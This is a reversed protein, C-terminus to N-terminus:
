KPNGNEDLETESVVKLRISDVNALDIRFQDYIFKFKKGFFDSRGAHVRGNFEFDRNKLLRMQQEVPAIWVQQSDSLLIRGVGQLDMEFNMLNLKANPLASIVSEIEIKDYDTKNSRAALYYFLKENITSEDTEFDYSLFGKNALYIILSRAQQESM